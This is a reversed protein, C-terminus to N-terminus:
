PSRRTWIVLVGCSSGMRAYKLPTQSPGDYFEVAQVREPPISILDFPETPERVGNQLVGDVYVQAYCAIAVGERAEGTDPLYFGHSHMCDVYGRQPCVPPPTRKSALWDHGREGVIGLGPMQQLVTALRMGDYKAIDDRTLFHGLGTRRHDEFGPMYRDLAKESVVVPELTVARGLVVRREVTGHDAFAVKTDAAGYGIRRVMVTHEGAPIGGLRFAGHEDTLVSKGLDPLAVEAGVVPQRTSDSVVVGTFTAGLRALGASRDLTIATRALRQGPAIRVVSPEATEASDTTARITIATNVPVACLRFGGDSTARVELRRLRTSDTASAQWEAVVRAGRLVSTRTSDGRLRLSGVVIGDTFRAASPGCVMMTIQQASPVRLELATASDVFTVPVRHVTLVSDLSATRIEATYQGPLLGDIAFRGREDTTAERATGALGVRAGAVGDGSLSDRLLGRLVLPPRAWLTDAGRRALALEGGDVRLETLRTEAGHGPRVDAELVPMRIAWRAVAWTGDRLRVFAMDGGAYEEQQPGLHVYRFELRRLESSARDVWLTGRVDPVGRAREPTPEFAIGLLAPQKKDTTLKFCHDEVFLPSLLMDLGPAYYTITNDRDTVVYGARRLSDPPPSRWARTVYDTSVNAQERLVRGPPRGAYPDFARAYTVTTAAIARASATLEAATLAARIQEWVAFTAAGSDTFARCVNQGAVRVTDLGVPLGTVVVRQTVEGGALLQFPASVVPRYGIRLTRLRYAGARPAALRFAGREDSLARADVRTASDVLLVVVGGVPQDAPDVVVGRVTQARAASAAAFSLAVRAVARLMVRRVRM